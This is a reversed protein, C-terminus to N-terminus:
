GLPRLGTRPSETLLWDQDHGPLIILGPAERGLARLTILWRMMAQREGAPEGRDLLNARIRLEAANVHFPALDGALVLERGNALRVYYIRSAATPVGTPIAVVGPAVAQPVVAQPAAASGAARLVMGRPWPIGAPGTEGPLQGPGLRARAMAMATGPRGAFAALGGLHLPRESTALILSAEGLWGDIVAQRQPIFTEMEVAHALPATTGSDVVIPGRGPVDLRFAVAGLVKRKMGSGAAYFNGPVRKWGSSIFGISTPAPGPIQAALQRLQAIHLPLPRETRLPNALLLWYFPLGLLAALALLVLNLRSTM